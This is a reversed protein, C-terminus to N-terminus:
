AKRQQEIYDKVMYLAAISRAETFDEAALLSQYDSLKWTVVELPEPEDGERRQPYLGTALVVHTRSCSFGPALTMTRLVHLDNAAYGVEEMIERNAADVAPEDQEIRGKPFGLEYRESGVSYERILLLTDEDLMPVILVAGSSSGRLREYQTQVGNSFVLDVAEITFM